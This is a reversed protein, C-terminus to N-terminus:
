RRTLTLMPSAVPVFPLKGATERAEALPLISALLEPLHPYPEWRLSVLPYIRVEGGPRVVRLLERLAEAHFDLGFQDAYLFLFHSCLALSFTGDAYPLRPLGAAAYRDEGADARFHAAFKALSAERLARHRTPSGYYSWDYHTLNAELKASSVGIERAAAAIVEEREGAYFPDAARADLGRACLEATFSSAGGAADLVPGERLRAETLDFMTLYEDYSRCTSAVGSQPYAPIDPREKSM